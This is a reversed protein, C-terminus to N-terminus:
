ALTVRCEYGARIFRLTWDDLIREGTMFGTRCACQRPFHGDEPHYSSISHRAVSEDRVTIPKYFHGAKEDV